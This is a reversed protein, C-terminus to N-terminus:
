GWRGARGPGDPGLPASSNGPCPPLPSRSGTTPRLDRGTLALCPRLLMSPIHSLLMFLCITSSSVTSAQESCVSMSVSLSLHLLMLFILPSSVSSPIVIAAIDDIDPALFVNLCLFLFFFLLLFLHLRGCLLFFSYVILCLLFHLYFYLYFQWSNSRVKKM